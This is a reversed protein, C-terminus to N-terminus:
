EETFVCERNCQDPEGHSPELVTWLGDQCIRGTGTGTTCDVDEESCEDGHSLEYDDPCQSLECAPLEIGECPDQEETESCGYSLLFAFVFNM